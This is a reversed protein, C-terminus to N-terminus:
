FFLQLSFIFHASFHFFPLKYAVYDSFSPYSQRRLESHYIQFYRSPVALKGKRTDNLPPWLFRLFVSSHCPLDGFSFCFGHGRLYSTVSGFVQSAKRVPFEKIMQIVM